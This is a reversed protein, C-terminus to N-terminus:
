DSKCSPEEKPRSKEVDLVCEALSELLSMYNGYWTKRIMSIVLAAAASILGAVTTDFAVLLSNSLTYTDGQGLAIIGPGLPILTGMLGFMPGLKAILDTIKVIRNYHGKEEELLRIALAERMTDTLDPHRTLETLMAKQRKLLGSEAICQATPQAQARLADVLAPLKVRLKRRETFVEVVLSGLLIISAAITLVLFLLDPLLLGDSIARLVSSLESTNLM